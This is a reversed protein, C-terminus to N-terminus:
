RGQNLQDTGVRDEASALAPFITVGEKITVLVSKERIDMPEVKLPDRDLIVLDALKGTKPTGLTARGPLSGSGRLTLLHPPM